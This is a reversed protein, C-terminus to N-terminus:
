FKIWNKMEESSYKDTQVNLDSENYTFDDRSIIPYVSLFEQGKFDDNKSDMIPLIACKGKYSDMFGLEWPMWKSKSANESTAYILSKSQKMRERIKNVTKKTVKKRDFNSDIIWDVYVSYGFNTLEIYLAEIFEKDKYSHSLFIDFQKKEKSDNIHTSFTKIGNLGSRTIKKLYKKTYYKMM